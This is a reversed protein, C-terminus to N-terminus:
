DPDDFRQLPSRAPFDALLDALTERLWRNAPDHHFRTHWHLHIDYGTIDWPLAVLRVRAIEAFRRGVALPVTAIMDSEAVLFPVGMFRPLSFRVRRTVGRMALERDLVGMGRGDAQVAVHDAAQYQEASLREGIQPHDERVICVFSHSYLARNRISSNLLRPFYGIAADVDGADLGEELQESSLALTRIRLGPAREDLVRMLRPLFVMEGIDSMCLVLKRESYEAVFGSSPLVESSVLELIRQVPEAIQLARATPQMGRSTRVFLPDDFLIRLKSLAFSMAPQSLGMLDGAQTVSQKRRLADFIKLLNLDVDKIDM